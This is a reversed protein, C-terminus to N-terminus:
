VFKIWSSDCFVQDPIGLIDNVADIVGPWNQHYDHGSIAILDKESCLYIDRKVYEYTHNGDIYAVDFKYNVSPLVDQSKGKLKIVNSYYSMNKDFEAEVLSFPASRCAEDMPDYNDEWPDIAYVRRFNEAFIKTSEGIYSGIECISFTYSPAKTKDCIKKCLDYLGKQSLHDPRMYLFNNIDM